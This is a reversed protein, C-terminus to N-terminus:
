LRGRKELWHMADTPNTFKWFAEEEPTTEAEWSNKKYGYTETIINLKRLWIRKPFINYITANEMPEPYYKKEGDEYAFTFLENTSIKGSYWLKIVAKSVEEHRLHKTYEGSPNHTIILDYHKLPLLDLITQEVEKEDLPNQDPGDDLDGMAGESNLIKLTKYFKPARDKDSGRCLCVTFVNWSPHKLITGGAWLTEDDPHALIIAVTKSKKHEPESTKNIGSIKNNYAFM